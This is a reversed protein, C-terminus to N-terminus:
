PTEVVNGGAEPLPGYFPRVQFNHCSMPESCRQRMNRGNHRHSVPLESVSRGKGKHRHSVLLESLSQGKGKHRHSVLLESLTQGKGKHKHSVLRESVSRGKGKGREGRWNLMWKFWIPCESSPSLLESVDSCKVM